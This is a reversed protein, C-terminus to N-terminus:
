VAAHDRDRQIRDDGCLVDLLNSVAAETARTVSGDTFGGIHSTAIVRAHFALPHDPQPPEPEFVDTAYLGLRGEDLARRMEGEDILGARATNVVIAGPPMTAIRRRDLLPLGDGPLPCHLTLIEAQALVDDLHAWVVPIDTDPRAPDFAVIRAGLAHAVRAVRSGIAGMGIIGVSTGAIERGKRRPWDGSRIGAATEPLHRCAALILAMALEAVGIANAGLAREVAIGRERLNPLPLNDAGSGNRSIVRLRDASAIVAASVPEVGALWGVCGPLLRVLEEQSPIEGPTCFVLDFGAARLPELEPPPASTLSRPTILIRPAPTM